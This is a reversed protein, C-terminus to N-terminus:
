EREEEKIKKNYEELIIQLQKAELESKKANLREIIKQILEADRKLEHVLASKRKECSVLKDHWRRIFDECNEDAYRYGRNGIGSIIPHGDRRLNSVALHIKSYIGQTAFWMKGENSNWLDSKELQEKFIEPVVIWRGRGYQQIYWLTNEEIQKKAERKFTKPHSGYFGLSEFLNFKVM